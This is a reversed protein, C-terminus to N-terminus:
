KPSIPQHATKSASAGKGGPTLLESWDLPRVVPYGKKDFSVLLRGEDCVFAWLGLRRYRKGDYSVAFTGNGAVGSAGQVGVFGAVPSLFLRPRDDRRMRLTEKVVIGIQLVRWPIPHVLQRGRLDLVYENDATWLPALDIGTRDFVGLAQESLDVINRSAPWILLVEPEQAVISYVCLAQSIDRKWAVSGRHANRRGFTQVRGSSVDLLALRSKQDHDVFIVYRGDPSWHEQPWIASGAADWDFAEATGQYLRRQRARPEGPRALWLSRRTKGIRTIGRRITGYALQGEDTWCCSTAREDGETQVWHRGTKTDVIWLCGAAMAAIYRSDPSFMLASSINLERGLGGGPSGLLIKRQAGSHTVDALFLWVDRHLIQGDVALESV